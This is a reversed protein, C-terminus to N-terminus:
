NFLDEDWGFEIEDGSLIIALGHVDDWECGCLWGYRKGDRNFHVSHFEILEMLSDVTINERNYKTPIDYWSGIENYNELYYTMLANPIEKFFDKEKEKYELYNKRQEPTIKNGPYAGAVIEVWFGKLGNIDMKVSKRWGYDYVMEGFVEDNVIDYDTVLIEWDNYIRIKDGSLVVTIPNDTWILNVLWGYNGNRDIYLAKLSFRRLLVREDVVEIKLKENVNWSREIDEYHAKYYTLLTFPLKKEYSKLNNLFSKYAERQVDTIEEDEGCKVMLDMKFSEVGWINISDKKIWYKEEKNYELDGFVPDNLKDM